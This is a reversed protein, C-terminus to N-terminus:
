NVNRGTNGYRTEGSVRPDISLLAVARDLGPLRVVWHGDWGRRTRGDTGMASYVSASAQEPPCVFPHVRRVICAWM